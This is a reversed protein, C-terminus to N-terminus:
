VWSFVPFLYNWVLLFLILSVCVGGGGGGDFYCSNIFLM